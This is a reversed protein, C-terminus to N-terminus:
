INISQIPTEPLSGGGGSAKDRSEFRELADAVTGAAGLLPRIGNKELFRFVLPGCAGTLLVDPRHRLIAKATQVGSGLPLDPDLPNEVAQSDGTETDAILFFATRGFRPEVSSTRAPGKSTVAIRM